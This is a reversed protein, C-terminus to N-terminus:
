CITPLAEPLLRRGVTGSDQRQPTAAGGHSWCREHSGTRRRATETLLWITLQPSETVAVLEDSVSEGLIRELNNDDGSSMWSIEFISVCM